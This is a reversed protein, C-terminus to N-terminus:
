IKLFKDEGKVNQDDDEEKNNLLLNLLKLFM